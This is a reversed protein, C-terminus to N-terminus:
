LQLTEATVTVTKPMLCGLSGACSEFLLRLFAWYHWVCNLNPWQKPWFPKLSAYRPGVSVTEQVRKKQFNVLDPALWLSLILSKRCHIPTCLADPHASAWRLKSFGDFGFRCGCLSFSDLRRKRTRGIRSGFHISTYIYLYVRWWARTAGTSHEQIYIYIYIYWWPFHPALLFRGQIDARPPLGLPWDCWGPYGRVHQLIFTYM